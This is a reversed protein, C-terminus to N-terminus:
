RLAYWMRKTCTDATKSTNCGPADVYLVLAKLDNSAVEFCLHGKVTTEPFVDGTKENLPRAANSPHQPMRAACNLDGSDASYFVHHSGLVYTREFLERVPTHGGGSFKATVAVMFEQGHEPVRRRQDGLFQVASPTVSTVRLRWGGYAGGVKGLAVPHDQTTRARSARRVHNSRSSSNKKGYGTLAPIVALVVLLVFVIVVWKLVRRGTRRRAKTESPGRYSLHHSPSCFWLKGEKRADELGRISRGCVVCQDSRFIGM